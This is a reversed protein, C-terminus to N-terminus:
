SEQEEEIDTEASMSSLLLKVETMRLQLANLRYRLKTLEDRRYYLHIRPGLPTQVRLRLPHLWKRESYRYLSSRGVRLLAVATESDVYRTPVNEVIPLRQAALKEVQKRNWYLRVPSGPERVLRSRVHKKHLAIRAASESCSLLAAAERTSIGWDPKEAYPRGNSRDHGARVRLMEPPYNVGPLDILRVGGVGRLTRPIFNPQVM